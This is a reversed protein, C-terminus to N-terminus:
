RLDELKKLLLNVFLILAGGEEPSHDIFRHASPNRFAGVIGSYLERYGEREPDVSFKSALTGNKGFVANVLDRGIKTQDTISGIIHLREELVVGANRVATDWSDPNSGGTTLIPFCRRALEKDFGSPNALPTLYDIFSTDPSNFDNDVAKYIEDTLTCNWIEPKPLQIKFGVMSGDQYPQIVQFFLLKNERLAYINGKTIGLNQFEKEQGRYNLLRVPIVENNFM